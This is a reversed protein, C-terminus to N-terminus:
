ALRRVQDRVELSEKSGAQFIKKGNIGDSSAKRYSIKVLWKQDYKQLFTAELYILFKQTSSLM